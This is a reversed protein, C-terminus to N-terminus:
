LMASRNLFRLGECNGAKAKAQGKPTLKVPPDVGTPHIPNVQMENTTPHTVSQELINLDPTTQAEPTKKPAETNKQASSLFCNEAEGPTKEPM